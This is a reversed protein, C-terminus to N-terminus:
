PIIYTELPMFRHPKIWLPVNFHNYLTLKECTYIYISICLCKPMSLSGKKRATQFHVFHGRMQHIFSLCNKTTFGNKMTFCIPPDVPDYLFTFLLSLLFM